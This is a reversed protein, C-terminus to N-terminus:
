LIKRFYFIKWDFFTQIVCYAKHYFFSSIHFFLILFSFSHLKLSINEPRKNILDPLSSSVVQIETSRSFISLFTEILCFLRRSSQFLHRFIILNKRAFLTLFYSTMFDILNFSYYMSDLLM